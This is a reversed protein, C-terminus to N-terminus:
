FSFDFDKKFDDYGIKRNWEEGFYKLLPEMARPAQYGPVVNLTKLKEDLFILSPFGRVFFRQALRHSKNRLSPSKNPDFYPNTYNRGKFSITDATEADFKVAYFNENIYQALSPEAFTIQDMMKCPGCWTTYVDILVKKPTIKQKAEMEEFSLWEVKVNSSQAFSVSTGLSSM